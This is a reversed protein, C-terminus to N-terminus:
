NRQFVCFLFNQVSGSPTTHNETFCKVKKFNDKVLHCLKDESYRQINLGSCMDPGKNSFTGIILYANKNLCLAANKLYNNIDKRSTLFHFVARDHWVDYKENTTFQTIDAACFAIKDAREQLRYKITELAKESIDLLTIKSYGKEILYHGLLSDGSGVEIINATKPLHLEEILRLSTSPEQQHWSVQSTDKTRFVKEWHQKREMTNM